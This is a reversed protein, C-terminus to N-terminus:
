KVLRLAPVGPRATMRVQVRVRKGTLPGFREVVEDDSVTVEAGAERLAAAIISAVTTRGSGPSGAIVLTLEDDERRSRKGAGM